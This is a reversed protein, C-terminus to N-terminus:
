SPAPRAAACAEPMADAFALGHSAREACDLRRVRKVRGVEAAQGTSIADPALAAFVVLPIARYGLGLATRGYLLVDPSAM